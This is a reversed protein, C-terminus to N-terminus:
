TTTPFLGLLSNLIGLETNNKNCQILSMVESQLRKTKQVMYDNFPTGVNQLFM